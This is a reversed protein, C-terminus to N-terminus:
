SEKPLACSTHKVVSILTIHYEPNLLQVVCHGISSIQNNVTRIL